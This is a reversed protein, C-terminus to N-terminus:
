TQGCLGPVTVAGESGTADGRRGMLLVCVFSYMGACRKWRQAPM